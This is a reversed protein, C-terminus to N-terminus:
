SPSAKRAAPASRTSARVSCKLVRQMHECAQREWSATEAASCDSPVWVDYGHLFADMATLHVCIDTALGAIVVEQTKMRKLLLDLPTSHFASHRPKLVTLDNPGPALLNAIKGRVGPLAKCGELLDRFESHWIGYNDNAYICMAGRRVMRQKLRATAQAAPWARRTLAEAGPFDLPNIYDVLLLVSRSIPLKEDAAM